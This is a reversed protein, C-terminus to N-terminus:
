APRTPTSSGAGNTLTRGLVNSVVQIRTRWLGRFRLRCWRIRSVVVERGTVRLRDTELSTCTTCYSPDSRRELEGFWRGRHSEPLSAGCWPCFAILMSSPAPGDHVLLGFEQFKPTFRVLKDPCDDPNQHDPCVHEVQRRMAEGCWEV